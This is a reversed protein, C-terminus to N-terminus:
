STTNIKSKKRQVHLWSDPWVCKAKKFKAQNTVGINFHSRLPPNTDANVCFNWNHRKSSLIFVTKLCLPSLACAFGPHAGRSCLSRPLRGGLGCRYSVSLHRSWRAFSQGDKERQKWWSVPHPPQIGPTCSPSAFGGSLVVLKRVLGLAMPIDSKYKCYHTTLVQAPWM